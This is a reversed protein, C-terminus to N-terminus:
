QRYVHVRVVTGTPFSRLQVLDCLQNVLWLGRGTEGDYAPRRRGVLADVVRGHDQVECVMTGAHEWMLCVGRGGGHRLSNTVLETVALVVDDVQDPWLGAADARERVSRRLGWLSTDMDFALEQVDVPPTPLPEDFWPSIGAGHFDASPFRVGDSALFPHTRRAEHVVAPDLADMDYPCLLWWAPAQAFALNLLSEHRHCEALEAETRDPGIPEGIGRLRRDGYRNREVFDQWAAIICAPNGGVAAMDAFAVDSARRGLERRLADIKPASVVVMVAEGAALGDRIFESTATLFEATGRYFLGEHRFAGPTRDRGGPVATGLTVLAGAVVARAATSPRASAM